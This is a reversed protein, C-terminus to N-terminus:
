PLLKKFMNLISQFFGGINLSFLNGNSGYKNSLIM